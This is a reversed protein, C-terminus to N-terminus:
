TSSRIIYKDYGAETLAIQAREVDSNHVRVYYSHDAGAISVHGSGSYDLVDIIESILISKMVAAIGMDYCRAVDM